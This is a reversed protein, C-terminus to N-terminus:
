MVPATSGTSPPSRRKANQPRASPKAIARLADIFLRSVPSITRNKLMAIGIPPPQVELKVPLAKMQSRAASFRLFSDSLLALYHGTQLLSVHMQLATCKVGTSPYPLGRARLNEAAVAGISADEAMLSWPEGVLESLEIRRRRAWPSNIGAVVNIPDDFLIEKDLDEERAPSMRVVILEVARDRLARFSSDTVLQTVEFCIRPYRRRLRDIAAPVLGAMMTESCGIRLEGVTPDALFELEQVTQHLDDFLGVARKLLAEGYPTTLVGQPNRDFLRVGLTHEIDAVAKSVAPQTLALDSAAKAMSGRQVVTLFTHLDRLKLRRGIRDHWKM